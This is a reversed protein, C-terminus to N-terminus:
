EERRLCRGASWSEVGATRDLGRGGSVGCTVGRAILTLSSFRSKCRSRIMVPPGDLISLYVVMGIQVVEEIITPFYIQSGGSRIEEDQTHGSNFTEALLGMSVKLEGKCVM